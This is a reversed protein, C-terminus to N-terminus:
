RSPRPPPMLMTRPIPTGARASVNAIPIEAHWFFVSVSTEIVSEVEILASLGYGTSSVGGGASVVGGGPLVGGFDVGGLDPPPDDPVLVADRPVRTGAPVVISIAM